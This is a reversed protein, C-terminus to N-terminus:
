HANRREAKANVLVKKVVLDVFVDRRHPEIEIRFNSLSGFGALQATALMGVVAQERYEVALIDWAPELHLRTPALPHIDLCIGAVENAVNTIQEHAPGVIAPNGVHMADDSRRAARCTRLAQGHREEVM